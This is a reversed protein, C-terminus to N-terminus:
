RVQALALSGPTTEDANRATSAGVVDGDPREMGNLPLLAPMAVSM